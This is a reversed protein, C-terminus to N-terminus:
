TSVLTDTSERTIAARQRNQQVIVVPTPSNRGAHVASFATSAPRFHQGLALPSGQHSGASGRLSGGAGAVGPAGPVSSFTMSGSGGAGAGSLRGLGSGPVQLTSPYALNPTSLPTPGGSAVPLGTLSSQRAPSSDGGVAALTGRPSRRNAVGPLQGEMPSAEAANLTDQLAAAGASLGEDVRHILRQLRSETEETRERVKSAGMSLGDDIRGILGRLTVELEASFARMQGDRSARDERITLEMKAIRAELSERAHREAALEGDLRAVLARLGQDGAAGAENGCASESPASAEREQIRRHLVSVDEELWAMRREVASSGVTAAAAGGGIAAQQSGPGGLGGVGSTGAGSATTNM